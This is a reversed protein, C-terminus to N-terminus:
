SQQVKANDAGVGRFVIEMVIRSMGTVGSGLCM